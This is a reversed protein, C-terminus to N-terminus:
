PSCVGSSNVTRPGATANGAPGEGGTNSGTVLYWYFGGEIGTPDETITDTSTAAGAYKTCSDTSSNLLQPLDSQIGRYLSYTTATATAPWTQTTKNTWSQATASTDGPATEGPITSTTCAVITQSTILLDDVYWGTGPVSSDCALRFRVQCTKGAYSALNVVVQGFTGIAGGTWAQRGAIPSSYSTSITGNYGGSAIQSGLDAWGSGDNIEIVCGDYGSEMAYTHWFSMQASTGLTFSPSVLYDDKLNAVDSSFFSSAGGNKQATSRAWDDSGQAASHTWGTPSAVEFGENIHTNSSSSGTPIGSMEMANGDEVGNSADFAHVRYYYTTGNVLSVFDSHSTGSLGSAVRHAVDTVVPSSTSRYVRYSIPGACPTSAASWGLNLQCTTGAPNTVSTLGAFTPTAQWTIQTSSNAIAGSSCGNGTVRCNYAHAGATDASFTSSTAGGIDAADQTWQYTFPGTGGTLTLSLLQGTGQCLTLPGAPSIAVNSPNNTCCGTATLSTTDYDKYVGCQNIARIRFAHSASCDPATWTTSTSTWSINDTTLVNDVYLQYKRAANNENGDGWFIDPASWSINMVRSAGATVATPPVTPAAGRETWHTPESCLKVSYIEEDSSDRRDTWVPYAVGNIVDLWTYDGWQMGTDAGNNYENTPSQTVQYAPQWTSGGDISRVSVYHVQQQRAALSISGSNSRYYSVYVDGDAQDVTVSPYFEDTYADTGIVGSTLNTTTWTWSTPNDRDNPVGKAVFIDSNCTTNGTCGPPTCASGLDNWVV